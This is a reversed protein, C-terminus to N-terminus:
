QIPDSAASSIPAWFSSTDFGGGGGGSTDYSVFTQGSGTNGGGTYGGGTNGAILNTAVGIAVKAFINGLLSGSSKARPASARPRAPAIAPRMDPISDGVKDIDAKCYEPVDGYCRGDM